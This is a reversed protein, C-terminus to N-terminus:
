LQSINKKKQCRELRIDKKVKSNKEKVKKKEKQSQKKCM